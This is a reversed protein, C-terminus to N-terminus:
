SALKGVWVIVKAYRLRSLLRMEELFAEKQRSARDFWPCFVARMSQRSSRSAQNGLISTKLKTHEDGLGFFAPCGKGSQSQFLNDGLLDFDLSQSAASEKSVTDQGKNERADVDVSGAELDKSGSCSGCGLMGSGNTRSGSSRSPPIARKIAVKTGRYEALLVVGFSGQGVVEVPDGFHLEEVNILWMEDNKMRRYRLYFYGFQFAVFLLVASLIGAFVGTSM